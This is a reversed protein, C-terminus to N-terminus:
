QGRLIAAIRAERDARPLGKTTMFVTYAKAIRDESLDETKVGLEVGMKRIADRNVIPVSKYPVYAKDLEESTLESIKKTSDFQYWPKEVKVKVHKMLLGNVVAREEDVTAKRKNEVQLRELQSSAEAVTNNLITEDEQTYDATKKKADILGADIVKGLVLQRLTADNRLFEKAGKDGKAAKIAADRLASARDRKQDDLSFLYGSFEKESLVSLWNRDKAKESFENWVKIDTTPTRKERVELAMKELTNQGDVGVRVLTDPPIKNVDGYEQVVQMASTFADDENLKIAAENDSKAQRINSLTAERVKPNKIKRAEEIALGFNNNHEAMFKDSLTQATARTNVIELQNGLSLQAKTDMESKNALFYDTALMDKEDAMLQMVIGSHFDSKRSDLKAKRQTADLGKRDALGAIVKEQDDWEQQIRDFDSLSAAKQAARTSTEILKNDVNDYHGDMEAAIYRSAKRNVGVRWDGEVEKALIRQRDNKLGEKIKATRADIDKDLKAKASFANEGKQQSLWEDKETELELLQRRYDNVAANDKRKEEERVVAAVDNIGPALEGAIIGAGSQFAALPANVGPDIKVRPSVTAVDQYSPLRPM